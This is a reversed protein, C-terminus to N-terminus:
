SSIGPWGNGARPQEIMGTISLRQVRAVRREGRVALRHSRQYGIRLAFTASISCPPLLVAFARWVRAALQQRALTRASISGSRRKELQRLKGRVAHPSARDGAPMMVPM